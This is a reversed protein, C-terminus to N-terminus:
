QASLLQFLVIVGYLIWFALWSHESSQIGILLAKGLFAIFIFILLMLLYSGENQKSDKYKIFKFRVNQEFSFSDEPVPLLISNLTKNRSVIAFAIFYSVILIAIDIVYDM